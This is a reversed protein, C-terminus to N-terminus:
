EAITSNVIVAKAAVIAKEGVVTIDTGEEQCGVECGDELVAENGIITREIRCNTGIIVGPMIVSHKIVTGAGVTIGPFLISHEVKGGIQCGESILSCSM